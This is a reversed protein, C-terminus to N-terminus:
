LYPLPRGYGPEIASPQDAGRFGDSHPFVDDTQFRYFHAAQLYRGTMGRSLFTMLYGWRLEMQNDGGGQGWNKARHVFLLSNSTGHDQIPWASSAGLTPVASAGVTQYELRNPPRDVLPWPFVGTANYHSYPARAVLYHQFKLFENAPSSARLRSLQFVSRPDVM